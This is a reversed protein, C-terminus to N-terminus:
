GKLLVVDEELFWIIEEMKKKDKFTVWFNVFRLEKSVM